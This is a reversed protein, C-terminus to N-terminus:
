QWIKSCSVLGNHNHEKCKNSTDITTDNVVLPFSHDGRKFFTFNTAILKTDSSLGRLVKCIVKRVVVLVYEVINCGALQGKPGMMCAGTVAPREARRNQEAHALEALDSRRM